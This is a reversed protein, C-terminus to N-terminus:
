AAGFDPVINMSDLFHVLAAVSRLELKQMGRARHLEVTRESIGLDAAVAKNSHGRAVREIVERERATLRALLRARRAAQASAQHRRADLELAMRVQALLQEPDFPKELFDIAGAKLSQVAAPVDAHGTLMIMPLGVGRRDLSAQLQLGDLGPMRIDSIVCGRSAPSCHDLFEVAHSYDAVEFGASELLMRLSARVADDDDIIFVRVPANV